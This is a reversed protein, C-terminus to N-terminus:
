ADITGIRLLAPSAGIVLLHGARSPPEWRDSTAEEDIRNLLKANSRRLLLSEVRTRRVAFSGHLYVSKVVLLEQLEVRLAAYDAKRSL